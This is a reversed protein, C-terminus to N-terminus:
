FERNTKKLETNLKKITDKDGIRVAEAFEQRLQRARASLEKVKEEAEQNNVHINVTADQQTSM